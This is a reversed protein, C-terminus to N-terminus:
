PSDFPFTLCPTFLQLTPISLQSTYRCALPSPVTVYYSLRKLSQDSSLAKLAHDPIIGSTVELSSMVDFFRVSVLGHDLPAEDWEQFSYALAKAVEIQKGGSRAKLDYSVEADLSYLLFEDHGKLKGAGSCNYEVYPNDELWTRATAEPLCPITLNKLKDEKMSSILNPLKNGPFEFPTFQRENHAAFTHNDKSMTLGINVIPAHVAHSEHTAKVSNLSAHQWYFGGEHAVWEIMRDLLLIRRAELFYRWYLNLASHYESAIKPPQHRKGMVFSASSELIDTTAWRSFNSTPHMWLGVGDIAEHLTAVILSTQNLFVKPMFRAPLTRTIHMHESDHQALDLLETQVPDTATICSGGEPLAKCELDQSHIYEATQLVYLPDYLFQIHPNVWLVHKLKTFHLAQMNINAETYNLKKSRFNSLTRLDVVTVFPHLTLKAELYYSLEGSHHVELAVVPQSHERRTAWDSLHNALVLAHAISEEKSVVTVIGHQFDHTGKKKIEQRLNKVVMCRGTSLVEDMRSSEYEEQSVRRRNYEKGYTAQLVTHVPTPVRVSLSSNGWAMEEVKDFPKPCGLRYHEHRFGNIYFNPSVETAVLEVSVNHRTYCQSGGLTLPTGDVGKYNKSSLFGASTLNHHLSEVNGPLKLWSTSVALDIDSDLWPNQTDNSRSFGLLSGAMLFYDVNSATLVEIVAKLTDWVQAYPIDSNQSLPAAKSPKIKTANHQKSTDNEPVVKSSINQLPALRETTNNILMTAKSRSVTINTAKLKEPTKKKQPTAKSANRDHNITKPQKIKTNTNNNNNNHQESIMKKSTVMSMQMNQMQQIKTNNAMQSSIKRPSLNNKTTKKSATKKSVAKSVKRVPAPKKSETDAMEKVKVSRVGKMTNKVVVPPAEQNRISPPSKIMAKKNNSIVMMGSKNNTKKVPKLDRVAPADLMVQHRPIANDEGDNATTTTAQPAFVKSVNWVLPAIIMWALIVFGGVHKVSKFSPKNNHHSPRTKQRRLSSSM